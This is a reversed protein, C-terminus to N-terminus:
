GPPVDDDGFLRRHIQPAPRPRRQGKEEDKTDTFTPERFEVPRQNGMARAIIVAVRISRPLVSVM